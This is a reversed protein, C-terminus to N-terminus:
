VVVSGAANAVSTQRYAKRGRLVSVCVARYFAVARTSNDTISALTPRPPAPIRSPPQTHERSRKQNESSCIQFTGFNCRNNVALKSKKFCGAGCEDEVEEARREATAVRIDMCM